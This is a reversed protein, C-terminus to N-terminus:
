AHQYFCFIPHSRRSKCLVEKLHVSIQQSKKKKTFVLRLSIGDEFCRVSCTVSQRQVQIDALTVFM